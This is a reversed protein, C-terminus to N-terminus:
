DSHHGRKDSGFPLKTRGILVLVLLLIALALWGDILRETGCFWTNVGDREQTVFGYSKLWFIWGGHLGISFYLSGSRQYGLGLIIGALTLNFFGPVLMEISGFGQLMQALVKFGSTWDIPGTFTAREFFHVLAYSASSGILAAPWPMAKRLAGFLAGRFVIEEITAVFIATLAAEGVHKIWQWASHHEDFARGGFAVALLVVFALSAFGLLFGKALLNRFSARKGVGVEAWTRIGINYLWPWLGVLALGLLSRNVYRHFPNKAVPELAPLITAMWLTLKYLWPALLAAGLFIFVFFVGASQLPGM